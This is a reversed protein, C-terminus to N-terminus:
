RINRPTVALTLMKWRYQRQAATLTAPAPGAAVTFGGGTVGGVLDAEGIRIQNPNMAFAPDPNSYTYTADRNGDQVLLYVRIQKLRKSLVQPGTPGAYSEVTAGTSDWSDIQGDENVIDLGFAFRFGLVCSILPTGNAAPPNPTTTTEVRM